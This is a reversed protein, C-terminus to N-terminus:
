YIYSVHLFIYLYMIYICNVCLHFIYVGSTYNIKIFHVVTYDMRAHETM